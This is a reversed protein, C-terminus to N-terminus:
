LSDGDRGAHVGGGGAAAAVGGDTEDAGGGGDSWRGVLSSLSVGRRRM